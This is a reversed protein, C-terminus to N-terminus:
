RPEGLPGEILKLDAKEEPLDSYEVEGRENLITVNM